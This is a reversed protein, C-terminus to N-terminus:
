ATHEYEFVEEAETGPVPIQCWDHRFVVANVRTAVPLDDISRWWNYERFTELASAVHWCQHGNVAAPCSHSVLIRNNKIEVRVLYYGGRSSPCALILADRDQWAAQPKPM